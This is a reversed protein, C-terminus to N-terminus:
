IPKCNAAPETPLQDSARVSTAFASRWENEQLSLREFPKKIILFGVGIEPTQQMKPPLDAGLCGIALM